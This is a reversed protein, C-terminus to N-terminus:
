REPYRSRWLKINISNIFEIFLTSLSLVTGLVFALCGKSNENQEKEIDSPKSESDEFSVVKIHEALGQVIGTYTFFLKDNLQM